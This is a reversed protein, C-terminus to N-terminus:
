ELIKFIRGDKIKLDFVLIIQKKSDDLLSYVSAIVFLKQMIILINLIMPKKYFSEDFINQIESLL